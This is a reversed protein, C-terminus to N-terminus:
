GREARGGGGQDVHRLHQRARARVRRAEATESLLARNLCANMPDGRRPSWHGTTEVAKSM